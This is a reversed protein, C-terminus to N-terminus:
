VKRAYVRIGEGLGLRPILWFLPRAITRAIVRSLTFGWGKLWALRRVLSRVSGLASGSASGIMGMGLVLCSHGLEGNCTQMDVVQFGKTMLLQRLTAPTFYFLHEPPNIMTWRRGNLRAILSAINPLTIVLLGGGRLVRHVEVLEAAPDQTHELVDWMTVVDFSGSPFGIDRLRGKRVDLGLRERAVQIEWDALEIGTVTWGRRRACDLFIGGACGVDLLSGSRIYKEIGIVRNTYDSAFKGTSLYDELEREGAGIFFYQQKEYWKTLEEQSPQPNLFTLGCGQCRALNYGNIDAYLFIITKAGCLCCTQQLM